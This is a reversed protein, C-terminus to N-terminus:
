IKGQAVKPLFIRQFVNENAIIDCQKCKGQAKWTEVFGSIEGLKGQSKSLKEFERLKGHKVPKHGGQSLTRLKSFNNRILAVHLVKFQTDIQSM